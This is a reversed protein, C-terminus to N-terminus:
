ARWGTLDDLEAQILKLRQRYATTLAGEVTMVFADENTEIYYGKRTGSIVFGFKEYMRQAARNSVRVELSLVASGRALAETVLTLLLRSGIKHGHWRPHAAINTVHAEGPAFMMGAYGVLSGAHRAVIYRRSDGQGLESLFLSKSWPRPYVQAEIRTVAWVDRRRMHSIEIGAMAGRGRPLPEIAMM